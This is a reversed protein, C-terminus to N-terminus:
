ICRTIISNSELLTNVPFTEPFCDNTIVKIAYLDHDHITYQRTTTRYGSFIINVLRIDGHVYGEKHITELQVLLNIVQKKSKPFHQGDRWEYKLATFRRDSSIELIQADPLIM